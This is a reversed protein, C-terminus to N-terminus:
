SMSNNIKMVVCKKIQAMVPDSMCDKFREDIERLVEARSKNMSPYGITPRDEEDPNQPDGEVYVYAIDMAAIRECLRASIAAGAGLLVKGDPGVLPKALVMDAELAEPSLKRM